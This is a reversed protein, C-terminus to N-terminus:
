NTVCAVLNIYPLAATAPATNGTFAHTGNQAYGNACCGSILAVGKPATQLTGDVAHAHTRAEGRQLPPGGFPADPVGGAPLGVLYRGQLLPPRSWSAPCAGEFYAVLGSPPRSVSAAASALKRCAFLEVYPLAVREAAADVVIAVTGAAGVANGGGAVGAFSAAPLALAVAGGEHAHARQEGDGLPTGWGEAGGGGDEDPSPVITRGTAAQYRAWGDPCRAAAFFEIAGAPFPDSGAAVSLDEAGADVAADDAGVHFQCAGGGTAAVVVLLAAAGTARRM